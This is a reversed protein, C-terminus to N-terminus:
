LTDAISIIATSRHECWLELAWAVGLTRASFNILLVPKGLNPYQHHWAWHPSAKGIYLGRSV